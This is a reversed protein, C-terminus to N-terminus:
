ARRKSKPNKVMLSKIMLRKVVPTKIMKPSKIRPNKVLNRWYAGAHAGNMVLSRLHAAQTHLM